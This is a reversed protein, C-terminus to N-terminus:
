IGRCVISGGSFSISYQLGICAFFFRSLTKNTHDYEWHLVRMSYRVKLWVGKRGASKWAALSSELVEKFADTSEPLGKSGDVTVGDYNDTTHELMKSSDQHQQHRNQQEGSTLSPSPVSSSSVGVPAIPRRDSNNDNINTPVAEISTTPSGRPSSSRTRDIIPDIEIALCFTCPQSTALFRTNTLRIPNSPHLSSVAPTKRRFSHFSCTRCVEM